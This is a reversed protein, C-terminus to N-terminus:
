KKVDLIEKITWPCEKPFVEEDLGTEDSAWPIADEYADIFIEELYHNLSPNKRLVRRAQTLCSKISRDWSPTHKEPQYKIKLLHCLIVRLLSEIKSHTSNGLGEIEEILNTIDLSSFDKKKLLLSQTQAWGLFDTEYLTTM